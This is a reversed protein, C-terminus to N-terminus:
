GSGSPGSGDPRVANVLAAPGLWRVANPGEGPRWSGYGYRGAERGPSLLLRPVGWVVLLAAAALLPLSGPRPDADAPPTPLLAAHGWFLLQMEPLLWPHSTLGCFLFAGLGFALGAAPADSEAARRGDRVLRPVLMAFPLLLLGGGVLAM